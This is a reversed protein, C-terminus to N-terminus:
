QRQSLRHDLPNTLLRYALRLRELRLCVDDQGSLYMRFRYGDFRSCISTDCM